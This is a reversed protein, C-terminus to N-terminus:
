PVVGGASLHDFLGPLEEEVIRKFADILQFLSVELMPEESQLRSKLEPALKRAFM